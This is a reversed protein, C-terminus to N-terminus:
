NGEEELLEDQGTSLIDELVELKHAPPIAAATDTKTYGKSSFFLSDYIELKGKVTSKPISIVKNKKRKTTEASNVDEYKEFDEPGPPKMIHHTLVYKGNYLIRLPTVINEGPDIVFEKGYIDIVDEENLATNNWLSDAVAIKHRTQVKDKWDKGTFGEVKKVTLEWLYIAARAHYSKKKLGDRSAELPSTRKKEFLILQHETPFNLSHIPGNKVKVNVGKEIDIIDENTEKKEETM